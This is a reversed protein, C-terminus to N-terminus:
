RRGPSNEYADAWELPTGSNWHDFLETATMGPHRDWLELWPLAVPLAPFGADRLEAHRQPARQFSSRGHLVGTPGGAWASLGDPDFSHERWSAAVDAAGEGGTVAGTRVLVRHWAVADVDSFDLFRYADLSRPRRLHPWEGELRDAVGALLAPDIEATPDGTLHRQWDRAASWALLPHLHPAEVVEVRSTPQCRTTGAARVREQMREEFRNALAPEVGTLRWVLGAIAPCRYDATGVAVRHVLADREAPGLGRMLRVDSPSTRVVVTRATARETHARLVGSVYVHVDLDVDPGHKTLWANLGRALLAHLTLLDLEIAGDTIAEDRSVGAPAWSARYSAEHIDCLTNPGTGDMSLSCDDCAWPNWGPVPAPSAPM